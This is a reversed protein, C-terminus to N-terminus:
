LSRYTQTGIRVRVVWANPLPQVKGTFEFTVRSMGDILPIPGNKKPLTGKTKKSQPLDWATHEQKSKLASLTM